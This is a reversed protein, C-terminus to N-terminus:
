EVFVANQLPNGGIASYDSNLQANGNIKISGAIIMTYGDTGTSTTSSSGSYQLDTTPFYLIGNYTAGAGSLSSGINSAWPVRPDQYFLLAKDTGTTPASMSVTGSTTISIGAYRNTQTGPYTSFFTVGSGSVNVSGNISMGGGVLIYEGASFIVNEVTGTISIGGCYVGPPITVTTGKTLKFNTDTCSGYSPISYRNLIPDIVPVGAGIGTPGCEGGSNHNSYDGLYSVSTAVLCGGGSARFNSNSYAACAVTSSTTGNVFIGNTPVSADENLAFMCANNTSGLGAVARAKVMVSDYSLVRMFWTSQPQSVIVEVFNSDGTKPGNLPPNNVEVVTGNAGNTFGNLGSDKQAATTISSSARLKELAGAYAGADAATQMRRKQFYMYSADLAMGTFAMLVAVTLTTLIMISGREGNRNQKQPRQGQKIQMM